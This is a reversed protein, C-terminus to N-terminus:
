QPSRQDVVFLQRHYALLQIELIVDDGTACLYAVGVSLILFLASLDCLLELQTAIYNAQVM